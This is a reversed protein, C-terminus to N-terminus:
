ATGARGRASSIALFGCFYIASLNVFIIWIQARKLVSKHQIKALNKFCFHRPLRKEELECSNLFRM